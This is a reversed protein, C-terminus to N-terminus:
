SFYPKLRWGNVRTHHVKGLWDHLLYSGNDYKQIIQFPGDRGQLSHSILQNRAGGPDWIIIDNAEKERRSERLQSLRTMAKHVNVQMGADVDHTPQDFGSDKAYEELDYTIDAGNAQRMRDLSLLTFLCPEELRMTSSWLYAQWLLVTVEFYMYFSHLGYYILALGNAADITQTIMEAWSSMMSDQALDLSSSDDMELSEYVQLQPSSADVMELDDGIDFLPPGLSEKDTSCYSTVELNESADDISGQSCLPEEYLSPADEDCEDHFFMANTLSNGPFPLWGEGEEKFQSEKEKQKLSDEVGSPEEEFTQLFTTTAVGLSVAAIQSGNQFIIRSVEILFLSSSHLGLYVIFIGNWFKRAKTYTDHGSKALDNHVVKLCSSDFMELGREDKWISSSANVRELSCNATSTSCVRSHEISPSVVVELEMESTADMSSEESLQEEVVCASGVDRGKSKFDHDVSVSKVLAPMWGEGKSESAFAKM